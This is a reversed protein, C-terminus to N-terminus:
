EDIIASVDLIMPLDGEVFINTQGNYSKANNYFNNLDEILETNTIPETTPEALEYVVKTNHTQLWTKLDNITTINDNRIIVESQNVRNSIGYNPISLNYLRTQTYTKYYDSLVHSTDETSSTQKLNNISTRFGFRGGVWGMSTYDETGDLVVEGMVHKISWNYPTGIIQDNEYLHIPTFYPSYSTAESGEEVQPSITTDITSGNTVILRILQGESNNSITFTIKNSGFVNENWTNNYRELVTLRINSNEPSISYTYTNGKELLNVSTNRYLDIFSTATATGNIKISGDNNITYTIGDRTLTSETYPFKLLNKGLNIEYEQPTQYPEYNGITSTTYEGKVIMLNEFDTYSGSTIGSETTAYLALYLYNNTSDLISPITGTIAQLTETTVITSQVLPNRNGGTSNCTGIIMRTKQNNSPKVNAYATIKTNELGELNMLLYRISKVGDSTATLKARIGTDIIEYTCGNDVFNPTNNKDFLNKGEVSVKQLGTVSQIEVPSSPTPEGDQETDGNIVSRIPAQLTNNLSINTGTGTTKPFNNYLTDIGNNLINLLATKLDTAYQRFPTQNTLGAGTLNINDKLLGKTDNLYTLKEATTSM